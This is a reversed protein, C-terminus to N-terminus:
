GDWGVIRGTLRGFIEVNEEREKLVLAMKQAEQISSFSIGFVKGNRRICFVRDAPIDEIPLMIAKM